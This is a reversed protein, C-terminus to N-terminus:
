RGNKEGKLNAEKIGVGFCDLFDDTYDVEAVKLRAVEELLFRMGDPFVRWCDVPFRHFKFIMPGIIIMPKGVKLIRSLEKIWKHLDKIHEITQGSVVLDFYNDPFPYSYPDRAVIDVNEGQIIDLGIYEHGDFINKYSGNESLSGVDCVMQRISKDTYKFFLLKMLNYSASHM